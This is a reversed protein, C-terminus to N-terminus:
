YHILPFYIPCQWRKVKANAKLIDIVFNELFNNNFLRAYLPNIFGIQSHNTYCISFLLLVRTKMNVHIIEQKKMQPYKDFLSTLIWVLSVSSIPRFVLLPALKTGTYANVNINLRLHTLKLLIKSLERRKGARCWAATRDGQSVAFPVSRHWSVEISCIMPPSNLIAFQCQPM